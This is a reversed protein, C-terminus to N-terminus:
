LSLIGIKQFLVALEYPMARLMLEALQEPSAPMDKKVWKVTEYVSAVCYMDLIEKTKEDPEKGTKRVILDLYFKEIERIDHDRLNNQVDTRFANSFFVAEEKIFTFKNVLSAYLDDGEGMQHFSSMLLEDFFGNVLDYKDRCTRYFSQRSLGAEECIEKVTIEEVPKHRMCTKLGEVLKRRTENM